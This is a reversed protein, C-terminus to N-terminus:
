PNLSDSLEQKFAAPLGAASSAYYGDPLPAIIGNPPHFTFVGSTQSRKM